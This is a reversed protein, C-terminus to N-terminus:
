ERQKKQPNRKAKFFFFFFFFFTTQSQQTSFICMFVGYFLLFSQLYHVLARSHVYGAGCLLQWRGLKQQQKIRRRRKKKKKQLNIQANHAIRKSREADLNWATHEAM